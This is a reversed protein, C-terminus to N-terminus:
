QIIILCCKRVIDLNNKHSFTINHDPELICASFQSLTKEAEPNEKLYKKFSSEAEASLDGEIFAICYEDINNETITGSFDFKKLLSKPEFKENSAPLKVSDIAHLEEELDPHQSIFVMLEAVDQENLNGDLYDIFFLEYNERNIKM